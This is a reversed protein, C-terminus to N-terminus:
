QSAVAGPTIGEIGHKEKMAQLLDLLDELETEKEGRTRGAALPLGMAKAQMETLHVNPVHFMYSDPNESHMTALCVLEHGEQGAKYAAFMSDKGGSVLAGIKM